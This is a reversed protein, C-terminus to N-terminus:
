SIEPFREIKRCRQWTKDGPLNRARTREGSNRKTHPAEEAPTSAETYCKTSLSDQNQRWLTNCPCLFRWVPLTTKRAMPQSTLNCKQARLTASPLNIEISEDWMTSCPGTFLLWGAYEDKFDWSMKHDNVTMYYVMCSLSKLCTCLLAALKAKLHQVKDYLVIDM